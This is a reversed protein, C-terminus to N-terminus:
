IENRKRKRRELESKCAEVLKPSRFQSQIFRDIYDASVMFYEGHPNNIMHEVIHERRITKLVGTDLTTMIWGEREQLYVKIDRINCLKM